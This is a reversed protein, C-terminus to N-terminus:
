KPIGSSLSSIFPTIYLRRSHIYALVCTNNRSNIFYHTARLGCWYNSILIKEENHSTYVAFIYFAKCWYKALPFRDEIYGSFSEGSSEFGNEIWRFYLLAICYKGPLSLLISTTTDPTLTSKLPRHDLVNLLIKSASKSLM